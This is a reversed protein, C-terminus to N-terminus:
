TLHSHHREVLGVTKTNPNSINSTNSCPPQMYDGIVSRHLLLHSSGLEPRFCASDSRVGCESWNVPRGCGGSVAGFRYRFGGTAIMMDAATFLFLFFFHPGFDIGDDM